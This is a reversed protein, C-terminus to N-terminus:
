QAYAIVALVVFAPLFLKPFDLRALSGGRIGGFLAPLAELDPAHTNGAVVNVAVPIGINKQGAHGVVLKLLEAAVGAARGVHILSELAADSRVPGVDPAIYM